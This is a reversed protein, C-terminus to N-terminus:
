KKFDKQGDKGTPSTDVHQTIQRELELGKEREQELEQELELQRELKQQREKGLNLEQELNSGHEKLFTEDVYFKTVEEIIIQRLREPDISFQM